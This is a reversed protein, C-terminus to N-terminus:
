EPQARHALPCAASRRWYKSDSFLVPDSRRTEVLTPLVEVPKDDQEM